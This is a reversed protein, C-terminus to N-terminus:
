GGYIRLTVEERSRRLRFRHRLQQRSKAVSDIAITSAIASYYSVASDFDFFVAFAMTSNSVSSFTAIIAFASAVPSPCNFSMAIRYDL